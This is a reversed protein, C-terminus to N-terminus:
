SFFSVLRVIILYNVTVEKWRQVTSIFSEPKEEFNANRQSAFLEPAKGTNLYM